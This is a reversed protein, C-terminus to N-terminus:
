ERRIIVLTFDDLYGPANSFARTAQIVQQILEAAPLGRGHRIVEALRENGFNKGQPSSLEVVGDTYLVLTDGTALNLEEGAYRAQKLLGLGPGHCDLWESCGDSHVLLPPPHGCSVYTIRESAPDLMTYVVTVFHSEATFEPLLRNIASATHAADKRSRAHTRLLARFATMVLASAIGHGSVDAVAVGMRNRPLPIFDYYDGGIEDAPICVGAIDYGAMSPADKPFLRLQVARAMQIQREVLEKEVLQKHLM